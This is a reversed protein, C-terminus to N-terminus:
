VSFLLPAHLQVARTPGYAIAGNLLRASLVGETLSDDDVGRALSEALRRALRWADDSRQVARLVSDVLPQGFAEVQRTWHQFSSAFDLSGNHNVTFRSFDPVVPPMATNSYLPPTLSAWWPQPGVLLTPPLRINGAEQQPMEPDLDAGVFARACKDSRRLHQRLRPTSWFQRMCVQCATGVAAASPARQGHVKACHSALAAASRFSSRCTSCTVPQEDGSLPALRFYVVEAQAAAEHVRAKHLAPQCLGEREHLAQKRFAKLMARTDALTLPWPGFAPVITNAELLPQLARVYRSSGPLVSCVLRVDAWAQRLWTVAAELAACVFPDPYLSFSALLRVRACALAESPRLCNALACVQEHSLRRCPVGHLPRISGRLFSMYPRAFAGFHEPCSLDWTGANHMLRALVLSALFGQREALSFNQNRLLRARVPLFLERTYRARYMLEPLLSSDATRITGLHTYQAVCRVHLPPEHPMPVRVAPVATDGGLLALRRAEVSGKGHFVLICESKGPQFNTQIGLLRFYQVALATAQAMCRTLDSAVPCRILVAVDDLWTAPHASVENGDRLTM